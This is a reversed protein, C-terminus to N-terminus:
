DMLLYSSDSYVENLVLQIGLGYPNSDLRIMSIYKLLNGLDVAITTANQKQM